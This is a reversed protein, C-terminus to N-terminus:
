LDSLAVFLHGGEFESQKRCGVASRQTREETETHQYLDRALHMSSHKNENCVLWTPKGQQDLIVGQSIDRRGRETCVHALGEDWTRLRSLLSPRRVSFFPCADTCVHAQIVRVFQGGTGMAIPLKAPQIVVGSRDNGCDFTCAYMRACPRSTKQVICSIPLNLVGGPM